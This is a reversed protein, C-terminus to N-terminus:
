RKCNAAAALLEAHLAAEERVHAADSAELLGFQHSLYGYAGFMSILLSVVFQWRATLADHKIEDM